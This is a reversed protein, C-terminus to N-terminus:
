YHITIQEDTFLYTNENVKLRVEKMGIDSPKIPLGHFDFNPGLYSSIKHDKHGNHDVCEILPKPGNKLKIVIIHWKNRFYYPIEIKNKSLIPGWILSLLKNKLILYFLKLYNM